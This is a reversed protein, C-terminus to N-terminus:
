DELERAYSAISYIEFIKKNKESSGQWQEIDKMLAPMDSNQEILNMIEVFVNM